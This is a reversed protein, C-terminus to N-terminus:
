EKINDKKVVKWHGGKDPGFRKLRGEKQLKQIARKIASESKDINQMLETVTMYKNISLLSLIKEPTKLPTKPTTKLPTKPTTKLPTKPTTKLPTKELVETKPNFM